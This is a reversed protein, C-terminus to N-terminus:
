KRFREAYQSPTMHMHRRFAENFPPLTNFGSMLAVGSIKLRPDRELMDAAYKVRFRNIYQKFYLGSCERIIGSLKTRSVFTKRAVDMICLDPDLFMRSDKMLSEVKLYVPDDASRLSAHKKYAPNKRWGFLRIKM